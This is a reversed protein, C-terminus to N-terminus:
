AAEGVAAKLAAVDRLVAIVREVAILREDMAAMQQIAQALIDRTHQDPIALTAPPHQMQRSLDALQRQMDAVPLSQLVQVLEGKTVADVPRSPEIVVLPQADPQTGSRTWLTELQRAQEASMVGAGSPTAAPITGSDGNSSTVRVSSKTPLVGIHTM